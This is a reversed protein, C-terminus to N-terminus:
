GRVHAREVRLRELRAHPRRGARDTEREVPVAVAQDDDVLGARDPVAVVHERDTGPRQERAPRERPPTTTEVTIAFRPSSRASVASPTPM